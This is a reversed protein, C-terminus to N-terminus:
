KGTISQKLACLVQRGVSKIIHHTLGPRGAAEWAELTETAVEGVARQTETKLDHLAPLAFPIGDPSPFGLRVRDAEQVLEVVSRTLNIPNPLAAATAQKLWATIAIWQAEAKAADAYRGAVAELKEMSVPLPPNRAQYPPQPAPKFMAHERDQVPQSERLRRLSAGGQSPNRMSM